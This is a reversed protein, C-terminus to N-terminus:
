TLTLKALVVELKVSIRKGSSPKPVLKCVIKEAICWIVGFIPKSDEDVGFCPDLCEKQATIQSIYM